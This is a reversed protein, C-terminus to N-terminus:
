TCAVSLNLTLFILARRLPLCDSQRCTQSCVLFLIISTCGSLPLCCYQNQAVLSKAPYQLGYSALAPQSLNYSSQAEVHSRVAFGGRGKKGGEM